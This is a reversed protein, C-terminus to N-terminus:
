FGDHFEVIDGINFTFKKPPASDAYATVLFSDLTEHKDDWTGGFSVPINGKWRAKPFLPSRMNNGASVRFYKLNPDTSDDELYNPDAYGTARGRCQTPAMINLGFHRCLSDSVNEVKWLLNSKPEKRTEYRWLHLELSVLIEPRRIRSRIDLIHQTSLGKLKSGVRQYFILDRAQHPADGSPDIRIIVVGRVPDRPFPLLRVGIRSVPPSVLSYIVDELWGQLGGKISFDAGEDFKVPQEPSPDHCGIVLYGGSYNAFASVYCSLNQLVKGEDKLWRSAKFDLWESEVPPLNEVYALDWEHLPKLQAIM